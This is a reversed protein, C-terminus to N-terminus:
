NTKRVQKRERERKKKRGCSFISKSIFEQRTLCLICFLFRHAEFPVYLSLQDYTTPWVAVTPKGEHARPPREVDPVIDAIVLLAAVTTGCRLNRDSLNLIFCACLSIFFVARSAESAREKWLSGQDALVCWSVLIWKQKVEWTENFANVPCNFLIQVSALKEPEAAVTAAVRQERGM